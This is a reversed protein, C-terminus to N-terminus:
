IYSNIENIIKETAGINQKVFDSCIKGAKQRFGDDSFLKRLVRYAQRKNNVIFGGGKEVLQGAERSNDIKPGFVVPIGYVAPELVNHIGQKFSGGVYAVDAYCYLTLLIGISDIIIVRENNYNNLYSFRITPSNNLFLNEIKEIRPITPEHPVIIIILNPDYKILKIVVPIIVEEDNEWSSGIVFVKKENFFGDKFLKKEKAQLSKQYVRDFRTDGVSKIKENKIGLEEFNKKDEDSVTLVAAVNKLLSRHFNKSLPLMRKSSKRMTADVIFYPIKRYDLQWLMNPWFDYRMFVAIDPRTFNLFRGSLFTTDLPIYSIVDAYPYNLSNRYGSPSFFTILINVNKDKKIKEIIPKAQEFEGMSASHFWVMKKRRDLGTLDIILNEFLKKRDRIGARIKENFPSALIFYLKLLPVILINYLFYWFTNM